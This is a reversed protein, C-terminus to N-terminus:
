AGNTAIIAITNMVPFDSEAVPTSQREGQRAGVGVPGGELRWAWMERALWVAAVAGEPRV